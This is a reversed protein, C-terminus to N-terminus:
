TGPVGSRLKPRHGFITLPVKGCVYSYCQTSVSGPLLQLDRTRFGCRANKIAKIGSRKRYEARRFHRLTRHGLIAFFHSAIFLWFHSLYKPATPISKATLDSPQAYTTHSNYETSSVVSQHETQEQLAQQWAQRPRPQQTTNFTDLM